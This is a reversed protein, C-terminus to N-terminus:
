LLLQAMVSAAALEAALPLMATVFAVPVSEIEPGTVAPLAPVTLRVDGPSVFLEVTVPGLPTEISAPVAVNVFEAPAVTVFPPPEAGRESMASEISKEAVPLM